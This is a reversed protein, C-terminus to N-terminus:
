PLEPDSNLPLSPSLYPQLEPKTIQRVSAQLAPPEEIDRDGKVGLNALARSAPLMRGELSAITSNYHNVATSLSGGVKAFHDALVRLSDYVKMGQQRIEESSKNVKEQNLIYTVAKLSSLMTVPNIIYVRNRIARDYIEQGREMLVWYAAELPVYLFVFDTGEVDAFYEKASLEDVHRKMGELFKQLAVDKTTPEANAYNQYADLPAKIDLVLKRGHPLNIVCDPRLRNGDRETTVQLAYDTGEVMGAQDLVTRFHIEGWSGRTQPKALANQLGRTSNLLQEIQTQLSQNERTSKETLEQNLKELKQLEEGIPKVMQEISQQRLKLDGSSKQELKEFEGKALTLFQESTNKLVKGSLSEFAERLKTESAQVVEQLEQVREQHVRQLESSKGEAAVLEAKLRSVDERAVMLEASASELEQKRQEAAQLLVEYKTREAQLQGNLKGLEELREQMELVVPQWRQHFFIYALAVGLVLGLIAGALAAIWVEQSM